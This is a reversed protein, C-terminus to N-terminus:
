GQSLPGPGTVPDVWLVVMFGDTPTVIGQGSGSRPALWRAVEGTVESAPGLGQSIPAKTKRSLNHYFLLTDRHQPVRHHFTKIPYGKKIVTSGLECFSPTHV